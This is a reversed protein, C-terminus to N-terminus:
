RSLVKERFEATSNRRPYPQEPVPVGLQACLTEWGEGLNHVVLREAPVSARVEAVNAEYIAIAHERDEPRGGFVQKAILSLGLSQPDTSRRLTALITSEFSTWWSEASRYTLLVRAQPYVQMLERWYFSSPWDVCSNYGALLQDWDPEAGQALARWLAQEPPHAMVEIMHHCPGFGLITLAERM